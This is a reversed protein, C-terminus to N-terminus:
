GPQKLQTRWLGSRRHGCLPATQNETAIVITGAEATTHKRLSPWVASICVRVRYGVPGLIDPLEPECVSPKVETTGPLEM